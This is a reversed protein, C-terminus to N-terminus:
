FWPLSTHKDSVTKEVRSQKKGHLSYGIWTSSKRYKVKLSPEQHQGSINCQPALSQCHCVGRSVVFRFQNFGYILQVTYARAWKTAGDPVSSLFNELRSKLHVNATRGPSNTSGDFFHQKTTLKKNSYNHLDVRM